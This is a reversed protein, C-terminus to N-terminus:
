GEWASEILTGAPGGVGENLPLSDSNWYVDVTEGPAWVLVFGVTGGREEFRVRAANVFGLM